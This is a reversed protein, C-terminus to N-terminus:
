AHPMAYTAEVALSEEGEPTVNWMAITLGTDGPTVDIRWGWDPGSPAEYSGRVSLRGSADAVGRCVMLKDSMHWSDIWIAAMVDPDRERGVMLSGAQPKGQYSWTYELRVFRGDLVPSVTATSASDEPAGTNPDHLRSTGRWAGVAQLLPPNRLTM